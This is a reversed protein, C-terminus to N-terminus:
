VSVYIEFPYSISLRTKSNDSQRHKKVTHAGSLRTKLASSENKSILCHFLWMKISKHVDNTDRVLGFSKSRFRHNIGSCVFQNYPIGYSSDKSVGEKCYM